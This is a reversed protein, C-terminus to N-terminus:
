SRALTPVLYASLHEDLAQMSAADAPAARFGIFGDPRVLVAGGDPVGAETADFQADAADVISVLEGWRVRFDDLRPTESFVLLHHCTGRLRVRGPFCRGPAPAGAAPGVQGVLPSGAYSMDLMCRRRAAALDQVPDPPPLVPVGDEACAGILEMVLGHVEDSVELVHQDAIGREIAYSALLSPKAAGRLVLALKWAIDSADLLAANLGEGGLPSSLHAADGLLFRRGDSLREVVRKHMKFDSVWRLDHLGVEAGVRRSLLAGLEAATPLELASGTEDRNVFILWREDPLPSFLVFGTPGVIIRGCEPPCSMGLKADAVLYRGDYTEGVLHEEMSHRTVSHGGGAGLVYAATVEETRDDAKLTVRLGAPDDEVSIVETGFEIALGLSALHERLITETRWQPLSCQFPYTGGVSGLNTSALEHLGPGLVQLYRIRVSARLFPDILGARDLMELVAPQLATGRAQHHPEPRREVIRPKIGHRLLECAAFLGAPGTGVILVTVAKADAQHSDVVWQGRARIL